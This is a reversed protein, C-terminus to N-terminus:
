TGWGVGVWVWEVVGVGVQFLPRLMLLEAMICGVAWVDVAGSYHRADLLLEPPRYRRVRPSPPRVLHTHPRSPSPPQISM